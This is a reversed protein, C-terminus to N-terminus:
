RAVRGHVALSPNGFILGHIIDGHMLQLAGIARM